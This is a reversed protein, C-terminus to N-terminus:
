CRSKRTVSHGPTSDMGRMQKQRDFGKDGFPRLQLLGQLPAGIRSGFMTRKAAEDNNM